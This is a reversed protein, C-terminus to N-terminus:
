LSVSHPQGDKSQVTWTIYTVPRALLDLDHALAPTMFTLRIGVGGAEFDYITRTPLVKLSRQQMAPLQPPESGIIRFVKGDIRVLGGLPHPTGTWHRTGDDTLRDAMSWISFYPDCTVLPVAPPRLDKAGANAVALVTVALWSLLKQM